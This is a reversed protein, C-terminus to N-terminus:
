RALSERRLTASAFNHNSSQDSLELGDNAALTKAPQIVPHQLNHYELWGMLGLLLVLLIWVIVLM